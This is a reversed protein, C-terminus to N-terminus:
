HNGGTRSDKRASGRVGGALERQKGSREGVSGGRVHGRRANGPWRRVGEVGKQARVGSAWKGRSM